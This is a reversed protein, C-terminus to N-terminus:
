TFISSEINFIEDFKQGSLYGENTHIIKLLVCKKDLCRVILDKNQKFIFGPKLSFDSYDQTCVEVECVRIPNGNLFTIAGKNWPNCAQVLAKIEEATMQDWKILIDDLEANSLLNVTKEDQPKLPVNGATQQWINVLNIMTTVCLQALKSMHTGHTEDELIPLKQQLAIPGSDVKETLKHVTIGGFPEQNKIQWFIPEAGGYAPLLAFHFNFWSIAPNSLIEKPIIVPFTMVLILEPKEKKVWEQIQKKSNQATIATFPHQYNKCVSKIDQIEENDSEVLLVSTNIKNELLTQLSPLGLRSNVLLGIKM